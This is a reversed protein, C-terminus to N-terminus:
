ELDTGAGEIIFSRRVIQDSVSSSFGSKRGDSFDKMGMNGWPMPEPVGDENLDENAICPIKPSSPGDGLM